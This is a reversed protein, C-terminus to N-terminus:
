DVKRIGVLGNMFWARQALTDSSWKTLTSGAYQGPLYIGYKVDDEGRVEYSHVLAAHGVEPDNTSTTIGAVYGDDLLARVDDITWPSHEVSYNPYEKLPDSEKKFHERMREIFEDSYEENVAEGLYTTIHNRYYPIGEAVFVQANFPGRNKVEYGRALLFGLEQAQSTPKGLKRGILSSLEDEHIPGGDEFMHVINALTVVGCAYEDKQALPLPEFPAPRIVHDPPGPEQPWILDDASAIIVPGSDNTEDSTLWTAENPLNTVSPDATNRKESM